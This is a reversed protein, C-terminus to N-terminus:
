KPKDGDRSEIRFVAHVVWVMAGVGGLLAGTVVLWPSIGILGDLWYGLGMPILMVLVFQIGIGTYRMYANMGGQVARRRETEVSKGSQPSQRLAEADRKLREYDERSPADPRSEVPKNEGTQAVNFGM